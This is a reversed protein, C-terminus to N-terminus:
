PTPPRKGRRKLTRTTLWPLVAPSSADAGQPGCVKMSGPLSGAIMVAGHAALATSQTPSLTDPTSPNHHAGHFYKRLYIRKGRTNLDPTSWRLVMAVDGPLPYHGAAPSYTGVVPSLPSLTYDVVDTATASGAAYGYARVLSITAPLCTKESAFIADYLAKWAAANAPTTGELHYRNSWEENEGRYSFRKVLIVSDTDPM